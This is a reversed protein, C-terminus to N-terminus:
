IPLPKEPYDIRIQEFDENEEIFADLIDPAFLSRQDTTLIAMTELHSYAPKLPMASTLEDYTDALALIRAALPIEEQKLGYPYGSGDWREHHFYAISKGMSLYSQGTAQTDVAKLTDGGFIPHQKIIENEKDTLPENKLLISDPIGVKGIDHLISSHYLDDIYQSTILEQYEPKKALNMVLVHCYERIRELHHDDHTDRFESLKALGLITVNRTEQVTKFTNVLEEELKKRTTIDRILLQFGMQVGDKKMITAACEADIITNHPGLIRFQFDTIQKGQKLEGLLLTKVPVLDSPHVFDLLSIKKDSEKKHGMNKYFQTNAMLLTGDQDILLIDDIINEYLDRYRKEIKLLENTRVKVDDELKDAYFSLKANVDKQEMRLNFETIRAKNESSAYVVIISIFTVFFFCNAFFVKLNDTSPTSFIFIPVIYIVLLSLAIILTQKGSLPLVAAYLVLTLILGVYYFSAYGGMQVVMASITGGAIFYSTTIIAFSHKKQKNKVNLYLLFLFALSAIIRGVLFTTFLHQVAIYDLISFAPFLTIGLWLTMNTRHHFLDHLEQQFAAKHHSAIVNM